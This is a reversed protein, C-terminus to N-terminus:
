APCHCKSKKRLFTFLFSEVVGKAVFPNSKSEEETGCLESTSFFTLMPRHKPQISRSVATIQM